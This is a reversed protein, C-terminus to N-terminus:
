VCTGNVKTDIAMQGLTCVTATHKQIRGNALTAIMKYARGYEMAKSSGKTGSGMTSKAMQGHISVKEMPKAMNSSGLILIITLIDSLAKATVCTMSGSAKTNAAM